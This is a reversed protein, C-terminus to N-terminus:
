LSEFIRPTTRFTPIVSVEMRGNRGQEIILNGRSVRCVQPPMAKHLRVEDALQDMLALSVWRSQAPGQRIEQANPVLSVAPNGAYTLPFCGLGHPPGLLEHM